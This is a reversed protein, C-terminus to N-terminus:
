ESPSILVSILNMVGDVEGGDSGVLLFESVSAFDVVLSDGSSSFWSRRKSVVNLLFSREACLFFSNGDLVGVFSM